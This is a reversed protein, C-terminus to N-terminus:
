AVGKMRELGLKYYDGNGEIAYWDRGLRQAVACTTFSGAFPDLVVAPRRGAQLTCECQAPAGCIGCCGNAPTGALICPEVLKKPFTAFHAGRFPATPISWVSRKNRKDVLGVVAESFSRNQKARIKAPTQHAPDRDFKMRSGAGCAKPKAYEAPKHSGPGYQWGAVAKPNGGKGRHHANGTCPEKIAENDYFYRESKSLLFLYEHATGPRDKTSEPMANPKHWIIDRRLYWGDVRLAFALMWPQGVLDKQKLGSCIARNGSALRENSRDRGKKYKPDASPGYGHPKAIYCDGINLWLTGTPKLVRRVQAFIEVLKACWEEPTAELGIQGAFGYDRLGWYPPSTVCCDVSNSPMRSLVDLSQGLKAVGM